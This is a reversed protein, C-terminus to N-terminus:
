PIPDSIRLTLTWTSTLGVKFDGHLIGIAHLHALARAFCAFIKKALSLAVREQLLVVALNRHAAPQIPPLSPASPTIRVRTATDTPLPHATSTPAGRVMVIGFKYEKWKGLKPLESVWIDKLTDDASTCIVEIVHKPDTLKRQKIENLFDGENMM